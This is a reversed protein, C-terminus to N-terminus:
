ARHNSYGSRNGVRGREGAYLSQYGQFGMRHTCFTEYMRAANQLLNLHNQLDESLEKKLPQFQKDAYCVNLVLTDVGRGVIQVEKM